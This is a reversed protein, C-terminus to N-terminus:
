SNNRQADLPQSPIMAAWSTVPIPRQHHVAVPNCQRTASSTASSVAVRECQPCMTLTTPPTMNMYFQPSLKLARLENVEKKLRRNEETLNACCRRLYECDVETQKLKTRARRNQFWVEVQRPRLNLQKALALKQKPTLTNHEKFTEELVVGQEKTLRLKKRGAADGGDEEVEMSSSAREAENEERESRKGSVSSVTSNPSSVMLDEELDTVTIPKNMDIGRLFSRGEVHRDASLQFPDSSSSKLNQRQTFALPSQLLNLPFPPPPPPPPALPQPPQNENQPCRLSLGLGLDDCKGAM